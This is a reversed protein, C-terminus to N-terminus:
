PGIAPPQPCLGLARPLAKAGPRQGSVKRLAKAAHLRRNLGVRHVLLTRRRGGCHGRVSPRIEPRPLDDADRPRQGAATIGVLVRGTRPRLRPVPTTRAASSVSAPRRCLQWWSQRARQRRVPPQLSHRGDGLAVQWCYLIEGTASISRRYALEWAPAASVAPPTITGSARTDAGAAARPKIRRPRGPPATTKLRGRRGRQQERHPCIASDLNM